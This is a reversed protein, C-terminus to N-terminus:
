ISDKGPQLDSHGLSDEPYILEVSPTPVKMLWHWPLHHWKRHGRPCIVTYMCCKSEQKQFVLSRLKLSHWQHLHFMFYFNPESNTNREGTETIQIYSDQGKRNRLPETGRSKNNLHPSYLTSLKLLPSSSSSFSIQPSQSLSTQSQKRKNLLWSGM